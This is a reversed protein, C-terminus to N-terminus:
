KPLLTEPDVYIRGYAQAARIKAELVQEFPTVGELVRFLDSGDFLIVKLERGSQLNSVAEQTFGSMSLLVGRGYFKSSVKGFFHNM